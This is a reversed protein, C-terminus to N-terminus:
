RRCRRSWRPTGNPTRWWGKLCRCRTWRIRASPPTGIWRPRDPERCHDAYRRAAITFLWASFYGRERYRHLAELAAVFTQATLDEARQGDGTRAYFYRYIRDLYRRYLAAFAAKDGEQAARVLEADSAATLIDGRITPDLTM